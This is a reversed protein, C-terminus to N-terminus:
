KGTIGVCTCYTSPTSCYLVPSLFSFSQRSHYKSYMCCYYQVTYILCLFTLTERMCQLVVRTVHQVVNYTTNGKKLFFQTRTTDRYDLHPQVNPFTLVSPTLLVKGTSKIRRM